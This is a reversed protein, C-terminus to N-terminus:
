NVDKNNTMDDDTNTIEMPVILQVPRKINNVKNRQKQYIALEVCHALGDKSKILSTIKKKQWKLRSIKEEKILVVDEIKTNNKISKTKNQYYYHREQLATLYENIFRQKFHKTVVIHHQVIKQCDISASIESSVDKSSNFLSQGNTTLSSCYEEDSLYTLPRGNM